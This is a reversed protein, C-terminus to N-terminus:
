ISIYIQFDADNDRKNLPVAIDARIPGFGLNYRVGVGVGVAIDEAGPFADSGVTGADVFAVAGWRETIRRRVEFSSEILSLGGTPTNDVYRPGVAQWAYGRISGGGGSYFRRPTAVQDLDAGQITGLKLRGALVTKAEDDLSFYMSGQAQVKLYLAQIDGVTGTPEARGEIRWGRVPDLPDNSRDLAFAGLVAATFVDQEEDKFVIGGVKIKQASRTADLSVGATVFSAAGGFFATRGFRRTVDANASVGAADYADTQENYIATAM